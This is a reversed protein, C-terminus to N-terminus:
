SRSDGTSSRAKAHALSLGMGEMKDLGQGSNNLLYLECVTMVQRNLQNVIRRIV